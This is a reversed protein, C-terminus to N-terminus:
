SRPGYARRWEADSLEGPEPPPPQSLKLRAAEALLRHAAAMGAGNNLNRAAEAWEVMKEILPGLDTPDRWPRQRTLTEVRARFAPDKAVVYYYSKSRGSYGAAVAADKICLGDAMGQAMREIRRRDPIGM